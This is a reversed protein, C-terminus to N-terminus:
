VSEWIKKSASWDRLGNKKILYIAFEVNDDPDTIDLGMKEALPKHQSNIQFLGSDTSGNKNINKANKNYKSEAWIIKGIVESPYGTQESVYKVIEAMEGQPPTYKVVIHKKITKPAIKAVVPPKIVESARYEITQSPINILVVWLSFILCIIKLM